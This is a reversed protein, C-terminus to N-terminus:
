RDINRPAGSVKRVDAAAVQGAHWNRHIRKCGASPRGYIVSVTCKCHCRWGCNWRSCHARSGDGDFTMRGDIYIVVTRELTDGHGIGHKVCRYRIGVRNRSSRNDIDLFAIVAVVLERQVAIVTGVLGRDADGAVIRHHRIDVPAAAAGTQRIQTGIVLCDIEFVHDMTDMRRTLNALGVIDAAEAVTRM